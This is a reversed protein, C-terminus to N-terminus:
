ARFAELIMEPKNPSFTLGLPARRAFCFAFRWKREQPSLPNSRGGNAWYDAIM